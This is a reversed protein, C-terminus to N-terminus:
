ALQKQIYIFSQPATKVGFDSLTKPEEFKHINGLHYAIAKDRERYYNDFFSKTIGSYPATENWVAEPSGVLVNLVDAEAVVKKVPYTCYIIIRDVKERCLVKRFEYTKKGSMINEVHEPNISLLIQCM